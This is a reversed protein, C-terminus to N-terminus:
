DIKKGVCPNKFFFVSSSFLIFKHAQLCRLLSYRCLCSSAPDTNTECCGVLEVAKPGSTYSIGDNALRATRSCLLSGLASGLASGLWSRTSKNVIKDVIKISLKIM